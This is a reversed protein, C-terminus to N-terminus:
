IKINNGFTVKHAAVTRHKKIDNINLLFHHTHRTHHNEFKIEISFQIAERSM